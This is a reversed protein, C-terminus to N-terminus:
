PKHYYYGYNSPPMVNYTVEGWQYKMKQLCGMSSSMVAVDTTKEGLEQQPEVWESWERM